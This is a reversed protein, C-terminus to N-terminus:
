KINSRSGVISEVKNDDQKYLNASVNYEYNTSIVNGGSDMLSDIESTVFNDDGEVFWTDAVNEVFDREQYAYSSNLTTMTGDAFKIQISKDAAAELNVKTSGFTIIRNSSGDVTDSIENISHVDKLYITDNDSFNTITDYGDSNGFQYVNSYVYNGKILDDGAGGNITVNTGYSEISDNGAGGNINIYDGSNYISDNGAGGNITVYNGSSYISDAGAGGNITVYNGYRNDISDDGAGGNINVRDSYNNNISDDGAGGNITVNSGSNSITDNSAGANIKLNSGSNSIIDKNKTGSVNINDTSNEIILAPLTVMSGNALKITLAKNSAGGLTVQTSGFNIIRNNISYSGVTDSISSSSYVESLYLTDNAAFNTISDYGDSNGFVFVDGYDSSGIIIDNGKGGNITVNAAYSYVSDDGAGGNIAVNSGSNSITDNSAGANIKLNSGSNIIIDRDKTGKVTKNNTSNEVYNILSPLTVMSGNALKIALAKDETNRLTVKTDGFSIVRDKTSYSSVTESISNSSYVNSLYLTDNAAFNTISNSGDSNGFVFVDGGSYNGVIYDNGKGSNITVNSAYSYITDDAAGSNILVNSGNNYITDNGAGTNITVNSAYSYVSDNGAGGNITVNSGSNNITDNAAGANIKLNKGSNTIYDKGKTGSVNKNDTPNEVHNILSPLTVMSGNALKINLAMDEANRLTVQTNGFTLVRNSRDDVTESISNSSYVEKLYLTDNTSFNTISDHGDSNGFIFVDNGEYNGYIIDDGKGANVTVNSGYAYISDNGAGGNISSHEGYNYIYDNGAGGDLTVYGYSDNIRYSYNVSSYLSDNGAGGIIVAGGAHNSFTDAGKGGKITAYKGYNDISDDSTTGSKITSDDYNTLTAM